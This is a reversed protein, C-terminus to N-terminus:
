KRGGKNYLKKLESIGTDGLINLASISQENNYNFVEKVLALDEPFSDKKVWRGSRRGKDLGNLYFDYQSKKPIAPYKNIESALFLDQINFSLAKNIIFPQYDKQTDDSYIYEKSETVSKVFDFPSAM